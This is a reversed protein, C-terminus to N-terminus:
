RQWSLFRRMLSAVLPTLRTRNYQDGLRRIADARTPYPHIAKAIKGLGAGAQMAVSIEGILDGANEGVVTAGLIRDSGRRVHVRVFGEREGDLIARDIGSFPETFTQVDIGQQRAEEALLGVHAVEPSTYTCWPVTLRSANSRGYFLSNGIVTRALFDAAHTFKWRSCVDGAAYVRSSTTQLRDNVTVGSRSDYQVGAAELNMGEVNPLRGAAVLIADFDVQTPGDVTSLYVAGRSVGNGSGDRTGAAAEAQVREIKAETLVRVGDRELAQRVLEAADPDDRGMIGEAAEMLTVQSGFRAFCQALECGIPGGGIVALRQPLQTLSFVNENTLFGTEHLGPIPPAGARAGTCIAARSFRLRHEGVSVTRADVFEATGLFVDVGSDRFRAASDHRSIEARLRRMREMVAPFDVSTGDPVRVGYEGARRVAAVARGAALLAKSPVCGYNLCDGGMLHREVLAVKAGLGAAGMATVLGATGAGIVVLNYCSAPQPNTWDPPHVHEVLQRNFTDPPLVAPSSDTM